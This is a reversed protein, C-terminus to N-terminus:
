INSLSVDNGVLCSINIIHATIVFIDNLLCFLHTIYHHICRDIINFCSRLFKHQLVALHKWQIHHHLKDLVLMTLHVDYLLLILFLNVIQLSQTAPVQYKSFSIITSVTISWTLVNVTLSSSLNDHPHAVVKFQGLCNTPQPLHINKM